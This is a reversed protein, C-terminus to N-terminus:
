NAVAIGGSRVEAESSLTCVCENRGLHTEGRANFVWGLM